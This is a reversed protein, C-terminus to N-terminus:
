ITGNKIRNILEDCMERTNLESERGEISKPINFEMAVARSKVSKYIEYKYNKNKADYFRYIIYLNGTDSKIQYVEFQKKSM